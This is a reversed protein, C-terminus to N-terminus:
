EIEIPVRLAEDGSGPERFRLYGVPETDDPAKPLASDAAFTVKIPVGPVFDIRSSDARKVDLAVPDALLYDLNVDIPTEREDDSIAFGAHIKVTLKAEAGPDPHDVTASYTNNSFGDQLLAKGSADEVAVGIDTVEAWAEPTLELDLRLGSNDPGLTIKYELEDNLGKFNDDKYKRFGEIVGDASTRLPKDFLNTVVLEGEPKDDASDCSTILAPDAQLGFFRTRLNYPWERDPRDAVVDLEWVGPMLENTVSWHVENRGNETDLANSRSRQQFGRPDFIREISAKSKVGEPASLTVQMASAGAPVAVFHRDVQWGHVTQGDLTVTFNNQASAQHPVIVTNLFRMAPEDGDFADVVGVYLGPEQLQDGDYTVNVQADQGSRLYFSEQNVKCWPSQSRLTFKQAYQTQANENVGPMFIPEITFVQPEDTPHWTSRWFAAPASGDPGLPSPTKIAYDLLVSGASAKVLAPLIEAARTLDPVGYGYDLPTGVPLPSASRQLAHKVDVARVRAHPDKGIVDSILLASLGTAYPSAMSTGAWFDGERVWRPVSSTSWGPVAIDPKDLEGGRSSFVTVVPGDMAYGRVDRGTDAAMMAGVTIARAAAAPTGISSLGPGENGASTCFVVYPHQELFDNFFTDIDSEGELTSEVGYSLNCVV